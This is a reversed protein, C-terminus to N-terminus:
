LPRRRDAPYGLRNEHALSAITVDSASAQPDIGASEVHIRDGFQARALAPALASRGANHTCVLLVTPRDTM